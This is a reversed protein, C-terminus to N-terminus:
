GGDGGMLGRVRQNLREGIGRQADTVADSMFHAGRIRAERVRRLGFDGRILLWGGPRARVTGGREQIPAYLAAPGGAHVHATDGKREGQISGLLVSSRRRLRDAALRRARAQADEAFVDLEDRVVGSLSDAARQTRDAFDALTISM